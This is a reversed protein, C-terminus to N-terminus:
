LIIPLVSTVSESSLKGFSSVFGHWLFTWWFFQQGTQNCDGVVAAPCLVEKQKQESCFIVVLWVSFGREPLLYVSHNISQKAVEERLFFLEACGLYYLYKIKGNQLLAINQCSTSDALNMSGYKKYNYSQTVVELSM